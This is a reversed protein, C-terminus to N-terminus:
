SVYDAMYGSGSKSGVYKIVNSGLVTLLQRRAMAKRLYILQESASLRVSSVAHICLFVGWLRTDSTETRIIPLLESGDLHTFDTGKAIAGSGEDILLPHQGGPVAKLEAFRAGLDPKTM